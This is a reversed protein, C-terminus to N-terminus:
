VDQIGGSCFLNNKIQSIKLDGGNTTVLIESGQRNLIQSYVFAGATSGSGCAKTEGEVGREFTRIRIHNDGLIAIFDINAGMPFHKCNRIRGGITQIDLNLLYALSEVFIVFHPVGVTILFGIFGEANIYKEFIPEPMQIIASDKSLLKGRLLGYGTMFPVEEGLSIKQHDYLFRLFCRSGNGCFDAMSGDKNFFNMRYTSVDKSVFIVGDTEQGFKSIFCRRDMELESEFLILFSNGCGYYNKM